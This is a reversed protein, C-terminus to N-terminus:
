SGAIHKENSCFRLSTTWPDPDPCDKNFSIENSVHRIDAALFWDKIASIPYDIGHFDIKYATTRVLATTGSMVVVTMKSEDRNSKPLLEVVKAAAVKNSEENAKSGVLYFNITLPYEEVQMPKDLPSIGNIKLVKMQPSIEEFPVIAVAKPSDWLTALMESASNVNVLGISNEGWSEQFVSKTEDNVLLQDYSEGVQGHWLGQLEEVTIEDDVTPFKVVAAYIQVFNGYAKEDTTPVDQSLILSNPNPSKTIVLDSQDALTNQWSQPIGASIYLSQQEPQFATPTITTEITVPTSSVLTQTPSSCGVSLSIFVIVAILNKIIASFTVKRLKLRM